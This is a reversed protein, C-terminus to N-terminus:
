LLPGSANPRSIIYITLDHTRLGLQRLFDRDVELRAQHGTEPDLWATGQWTRRGMPGECVLRIRFSREM